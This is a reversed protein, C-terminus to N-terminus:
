YKMNIKCKLRWQTSQQIASLHTLLCMLFGIREVTSQYAEDWSIGQKLINSKKTRYLNLPQAVLLKCCGDIGLFGFKDTLVAASFPVGAYPQVTLLCHFTLNGVNRAPHMLILMTVWSLARCALNYSSSITNMSTDSVYHLTTYALCRQRSKFLPVLKM